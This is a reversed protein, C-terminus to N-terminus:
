VGKPPEDPVIRVSMPSPPVPLPALLGLKRAEDINAKDAMFEMLQQPSNGFRARLGAPMSMFTDSAALVANQATQFDVVDSFDGFEPARFDDPMEGTLGFREVITNINVEDVFQQQTMTPMDANDFATELSVADMDYNYASRIFVPRFSIVGDEDVFTM